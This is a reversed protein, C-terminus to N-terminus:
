GMPRGWPSVPRRLPLVLVVGAVFGGIHAWWATSTEVGFMVQYIQVALWLGLAWSARIRLPVVNMVLGWVHARPHLVLYAGIVGAVAGSAGILPDEPATSMAAYTLGAIAGCGLYFGVFRWHGMSDEVNDGFVQLFLMNGLLHLFSGHLFLSTLLTLSPPVLAYGDPLVADGFLVAPIVGAVVAAGDIGGPFLGSATVLWVLVTVAMIVRTLHPAKLSRLPVQDHLPIFV